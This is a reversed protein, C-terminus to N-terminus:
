PVPILWFVAICLLLMAAGTKKLLSLFAGL